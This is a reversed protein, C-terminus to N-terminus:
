EVSKLSEVMKINQLKKNMAINVILSFILTIIIAYIYSIFYIERGFMVSELEAIKMIFLHLAKGLLLGFLSGIFTLLAIERYVYSSVERQTFGLVKITAIERMRESINVNSLNYLVVFALLGASIIMVVVVLNLSKIMDKFQDALGSYFTISTIMKSDILETGYSSELEKSNDNLRIITTNYNPSLEFLNKYYAASMFVYHGVYNETIGVVTAQEKYDDSNAITVKDDIKLNLDNAAKESIIIGSTKISLSTQDQRVRLNYFSKFQENDYPVIISVALEDNNVLLKGSSESILMADQTETKKKLEIIYDQKESLLLDDAFKASASYSIIEDFQYVAIQGISDRIGFGALLLASCGSIGIITMFFRKKYRFINRATVKTTFSFHKWLITIKELLIKKGIVPAKPRLLNAPNDQLIVYCSSLSALLSTAIAILSTFLILEVNPLYVINPITYMTNWVEFIVTPFIYMGAIIGFICGAVSALLAYRLYKSVISANSYGLAKLTGIAGRQEDIMRTMTTSCVLASVLFFFVPFVQAINDMRDAASGYDRYSYHSNRDLIYWQAEDIAEIDKEAKIIAQYAEDLKDQGENKQKELELQGDILKTQGQDIKKQAKAFEIDATNKAIIMEKEADAIQAQYNLITAELALLQQQLANISLQALEINTELQRKRNQLTLLEDEYVDIQAQLILNDAELDAIEEEIVTYQPDSPDLSAQQSRLNNITDNNSDIENQLNAIQAQKTTIQSNVTDLELQYGAILAEVEPQTVQLQQDLEDYSQQAMALAQKATEIDTQYSQLTIELMLKNNSLEIQGKILEFRADELQREAKEIETEYTAVGDEYETKAQNLKDTAEKLIDEYRKESQSIGLSALRDVTDDIHDFYEQDYSNYNLANDITVYVETHYDSIFNDNNIIMFSDIRGDKINTSGKEYSLYYPTRVIGVIKYTDYKLTDLIDDSTGTSLTLIDGIKLNSQFMKTDEILCEQDTIPLRGDIINYQNIYDDNNERASDINIGHVIMVYEKDDNTTVITTSSTAFASRVGDVKKIQEVDDNTMGFNSMIKLDMLNYQDYYADASAKMVSSSAKIGAFFAVGIAVIAFISLFREFSRKIERLLDTTLINKKKKMVM